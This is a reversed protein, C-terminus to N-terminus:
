LVQRVLGTAKTSLAVVEDSKLTGTVRVPHAFSRTSVTETSVAPLLAIPAKVAPKPAPPRASRGQRRQAGIGMQVASAGIVGLGLLLTAAFRVPMRHSPTPRSETIQPM